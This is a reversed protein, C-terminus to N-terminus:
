LPDRSHVPVRRMNIHTHSSTYTYTLVAHMLSFTTHFRREEVGSQSGKQIGGKEDVVWRLKSLICALQIFSTHTRRGAHTRARTHTHARAGHHRPRWWWRKKQKRTLPM